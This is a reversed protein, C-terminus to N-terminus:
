GLGLKAYLKPVQEKAQWTCATSLIRDRYASLIRDFPHRVVTFTFYDKSKTEVEAPSEPKLQHKM